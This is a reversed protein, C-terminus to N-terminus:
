KEHDYQEVLHQTVRVSITENAYGPKEQWGVANSHGDFQVRVFPGPLSAVIEIAAAKATEFQARAAPELEGEYALAYIEDYASERRISKSQFSWSM